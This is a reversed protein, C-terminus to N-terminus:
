KMQLLVRLSDKKKKVKALDTSYDITVVVEKEIPQEPMDNVYDIIEDYYDTEVDTNSQQM